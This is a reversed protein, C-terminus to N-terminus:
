LNAYEEMGELNYEYVVGINKEIDGWNQGVKVNVPMPLDTINFVKSIEFWAEQMSHALVESAAKYVVPDDDCELIWSDHIFNCIVVETNLEKNLEELRPAMRITALKAVDAASGQNEINLYDTVRAATYKRGLPTSGHKGSQFAIIGKQQWVYIERWLKRWLKRVGHAKVETMILGTQSLLIGLFVDIGGAYLFNFNCTKSVQRNDKNTAEALEHIEAMVAEELDTRDGVLSKVIDEITGFIFDRTYSHLDTGERFLKEMLKCVTIACITRLEIQAYDAYVLVRGPKTGFCGKLDRPIQQLNQDESTSRGSRASVKFKGYIRETLWKNMFSIRKLLKKKERIDKALKNGESVLKVLTADDSSRTNLKARVQVYSNVNFDKCLLSAQETKQEYIQCLRENDVPMGNWQMRLFVNNTKIDLIYNLDEFIHEVSKVVNLLYFVDIAAYQEQDDTLVPVDYNSKQMSAKNLGTKRYPDYGLVYTMVDDLSFSDENFYVLRAAFFTDIYSKPVWRTESQEQITTIDYHANHAAFTVRDLIAALMLHDPYRVFAVAKWDEQYFQALCVKGYKGKTETDFALVKGPDIMQQVQELTVYVIPITMLKEPHNLVDRDM